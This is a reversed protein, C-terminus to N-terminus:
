TTRLNKRLDLGLIVFLVSRTFMLGRVFDDDHVLQYTAYFRCDYAIYIGFRSLDHLEPLQVQYNERVLEADPLYYGAQFCQCEVSHVSFLLM